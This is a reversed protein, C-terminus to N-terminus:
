LLLYLHSCRSAVRNEYEGWQLRLKNLATKAQPEKKKEGKTRSVLDSDMEGSEAM